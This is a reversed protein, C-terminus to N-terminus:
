CRVCEGLGYAEKWRELDAYAVRWRRGGTGGSRPERPLRMNRLLKGVKVLSIRESELDEEGVQLTAQHVQATTVVFSKESTSGAPVEEASACNTCGETASGGACTAWRAWGAWTACRCLAEIALAM